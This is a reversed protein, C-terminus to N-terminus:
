EETEGPLRWIHPTPFTERHEKVRKLAEIGLKIALRMDDVQHLPISTEVDKLVKIAEPITITM